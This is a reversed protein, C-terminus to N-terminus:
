LAAAPRFVLRARVMGQQDEHPVIDAESVRADSRNTLQYLFEILDPYAVVGFDLSVGRNIATGLESAANELGMEQLLSQILAPSMAEGTVNMSAGQGDRLRQLEGANSQMWDLDAQLQPLEEVM